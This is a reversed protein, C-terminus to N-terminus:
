VLFKSPEFITIKNRGTRKSEYLAEDARRIVIDISNGDLPFTAVGGSVSVFGAPQKERHKFPYEEISKRIDEAHTYADDRDTRYMLLIFEEGGYRAIVDTERANDKLFQSIEKLLYDGEAHGNLDNYVKFNDIDFLFISAPSEYSATKQATDKVKEFFYRRNYLGTLPDTIAEEKAEELYECSQLSVGALDVVMAIFRKENGTKLKINCIGLVGILRDKFLIPAVIELGEDAATTYQSTRLVMVRNEAALGVLGDGSKVTIKGKTSGVSSVLILSNTSKNFLFLEIIEPDLLFKTLRFISDVTEEFSLNSVLDKVIDPVSILFQLYRHTEKQLNRIERQLDKNRSEEALLKQNCRKESDLGEIEGQKKGTKKGSSYAILATVIIVAIVILALVSVYTLKTLEESGIDM